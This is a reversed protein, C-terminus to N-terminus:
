AAEFASKGIGSVMVSPWHVLKPGVSRAPLLVGDCVIGTVTVAVAFPVDTLWVKVSFITLSSNTM